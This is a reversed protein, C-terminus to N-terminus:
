EKKLKNTWLRLEHSAWQVILLKLRRHDFYEEDMVIEALIMQAVGNVLDDPLGMIWRYIQERNSGQMYESVASQLAKAQNHLSTLAPDKSGRKRGHVSIYYEYASEAEDMALTAALSENSLFRILLSYFKNQVNLISAMSMVVKDRLYPPPDAVRLMDLLIPLSDSFGFIGIAEVGAIKLRPNQTEMIIQELQPKFAVDMLKALAIMAEGALM